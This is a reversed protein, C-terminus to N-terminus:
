ETRSGFVIDDWRPVSARKNRRGGGNAAQKRPAPAKPHATLPDTAGSVLAAAVPETEPEPVSAPRPASAPASTAASVSATSSTSASAIEPERTTAAPEAVPEAVPEPLDLLEADRAQEPRSVPPHAAPPLDVSLQGEAEDDGDTLTDHDILPRQRRGRRERLTDLLDITSASAWNGSAAEGNRGPSAVGDADIDYVRESVLDGGDRIPVLRRHTAAGPSVAAEDETLWRAEDDQATVHRLRPDYSWRARRERGGASFLLTLMWAGDDGRWSDWVLGEPAVERIALREVVLEELPRPEGLGNNTRVRVARAQEAVFAREALVPGEFRRIFALPLGSADALDEASEGCRIRAQIDRPRLKGDLEIQLQGLRSRDRRVAARLSEDVRVRFRQGDPGTLLLHEGDDHVGVLTLDQM